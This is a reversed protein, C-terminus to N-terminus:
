KPCICTPKSVTNCLFTLQCYDDDVSWRGRDEVPDMTLVGVTEHDLELNREIRKM